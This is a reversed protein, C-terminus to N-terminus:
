YASLDNYDQQVLAIMAKEKEPSNIHPSRLSGESQVNQPQEISLSDNVAWPTYPAWFGAWAGNALGPM